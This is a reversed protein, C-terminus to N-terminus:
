RRSSSSSSSSLRMIEYSDVCQGVEVINYWVKYALDCSGMSSINQLGAHNFSYVYIHKSSSEKLVFIHPDLGDWYVEELSSTHDLVMQVQMVDWIIWNFSM